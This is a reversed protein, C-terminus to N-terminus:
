KVEELEFVDVVAEMLDDESKVPISLETKVVSDLVLPKGAVTEAVKELLKRNKIEGLRDAYFKFKVAIILKDDTLEALEAARVVAYLAHNHNKVEAIFRPWFDGSDTPPAAAKPSETVADVAVPTEEAPKQIDMPTPKGQAQDFPADEAKEAVGTKTIPIETNSNTQSKPNPTQLKGSQQLLRAVLLATPDASVRARALTALLMELLDATQGLAAPDSAGLLEERLEDAVAKVLVALDSGTALAETLLRKVATQDGTILAIKLAAVTEGPPLGLLVRVAGANLDAAGSLSGLLTLADRFSGEARRTILNLGEDDLTIKEQKAIAKLVGLLAEPSARHFQYRQCRSVITVPVKQLETTALIFIVHAPPEELTKLLANFASTSLMHVEDIIYVKYKASSPAFGVKERLERIDDVGNNSAADIEIVDLLQGNDFQLCIECQGCPEGAKSRNQCNVARALLRALSTKGTGRPGSFLYAHGVSNNTLSNTIATILHDQGVVESFKTPRYTRYLSSM